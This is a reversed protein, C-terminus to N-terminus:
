IFDLLFLRFLKKMKIKLARVVDENAVILNSNNVKTIGESQYIRAKASPICLAIKEIKTELEDSAEDVLQKIDNVVSSMDEIIGKKIGHSTIKKSFLINLNASVVEGILLKITANGIDLVAYINRM